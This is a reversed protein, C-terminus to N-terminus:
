AVVGLSGGGLLARVEGLIGQLGPTFTPADGGQLASPTNGRQSEWLRAAVMLVATRVRSQPVATGATYTVTVYRRGRFGTLGGYSGYQSFSWGTITEGPVTVSSVAVVPFHSLVVADGIVEATETYSQVDSVRAEERVLEEASDLFDLLEDDNASSTMNLHRKLDELTAITM